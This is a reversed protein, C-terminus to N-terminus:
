KCLTNYRATYAKQQERTLLTADHNLDNARLVMERQMQLCEEGQNSAPKTMNTLQACATLMVGSAAFVVLPLNNKM